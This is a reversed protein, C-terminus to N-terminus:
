LGFIKYFERSSFDGISRDLFRGLTIDKDKLSRKLSNPISYFEKVLKKTNEYLEDESINRPKFVVNKLNYKNWDKTLIRDESELEDFLKTGPFPTVVAFGARDLQWEYITRLTSNFVGSADADFGFMFLGMTMMGHGKIKKIASHYDEIKNTRKEVDKITESNISEFGVLWLDCGADRALFLLEEDEQLININGYCSFKKNLGKMEQFLAKTYKPNITLSSDAFFLRKSKISKIEGIVKHIPRMRLTSGEVKHISCFKCGYPCGRTAQIPTTFLLNQKRMRKPSPILNPDVPKSRYFPKLTKNEFDNLLQPWSIEAEGIVVSDAHQKAEEPLATPHYGGLVVTKGRKRFEDAVHYAHPTSYTLCSIGVLDGNWDFDVNQYREDILELEYKDPTIASLQDLTLSPYFSTYIFEYFFSKKTGPHALILLIKM